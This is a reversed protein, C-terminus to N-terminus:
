RYFSIGLVASATQQIFQLDQMRGGTYPLCSGAPIPQGGIGVTATPAVNVDLYNVNQTSACIVAYTAGPPIGSVTTTPGTTTTCSSLATASGLSALSCFGLAINRPLESGATNGGAGQPSVWSPSLLALWAGLFAVPLLNRFLSM